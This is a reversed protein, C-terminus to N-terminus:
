VFSGVENLSKNDEGEHCVHLKAKNRKLDHVCLVNVWLQQLYFIEQVSIHPLPLNQMYDLTIATTENNTKETAVKM